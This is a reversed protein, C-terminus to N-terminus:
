SIRTLPARSVRTPLCNHQGGAGVGTCQRYEKRHFSTSDLSPARRMPATGLFSAKIPEPTIPRFHSTHRRKPASTVMRSPKGVKRPATSSCIALSALFAKSLCPRFISNPTFTPSIWVAFGTDADGVGVGLAFGLRQLGVFQDHGNYTGLVM